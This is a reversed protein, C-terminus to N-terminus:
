KSVRRTRFPAFRPEIRGCKGCDAWERQGVGYYNGPDLYDEVTVSGNALLRGCSRCRFRWEEWTEPNILADLDTTTM